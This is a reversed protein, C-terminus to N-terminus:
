NYTVTIVYYNRTSIKLIITLSRPSTLICSQRVEGKNYKYSQFSSGDQSFSLVYSKVWQQYNVNKRGQTAVKTVTMSSGLDIQIWGNPYNDTSQWVDPGHLRSFTAEHCSSCFLINCCYANSSSTMAYDPIKGRELGVATRSLCRGAM